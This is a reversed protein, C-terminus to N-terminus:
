RLLRKALLAMSPAQVFLSFMVVGFAISQITWWYDLSTPLSLALALTVAGRLGGWVMITQMPLSVRQNKFVGFFALVGYVSVVRALLIAAIAILMALWRQEFMQVTIVAGMILFVSVNAVYSLADWLFPSNEATMKEIDDGAPQERASYALAALLTAMVGSLGLLEALMFSGYALVLSLMAKLLPEAKRQLCAFIVGLALGLLAGGFFILLFDIILATLSWASASAPQEASAVAMSLFLSFLVIATADNFLSEGELLVAVRKPARIAKLKDVVAVPDTAALIAGTLLAAPWPFGTEHDIGYLLVAAVIVCSLLMAIIALCLIIILNDKLAQKDMNYASEFVLVPIFVYFIIAQFNDARLGTDVGLYVLLESVAFGTLVLISPLPLHLVRALPQALMSLALILVLALILHEATM